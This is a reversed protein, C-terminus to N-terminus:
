RSSPHKAQQIILRGNMWTKKNRQTMGVKSCLSVRRLLKVINSKKLCGGWEIQCYNQKQEDYFTMKAETGFSSHQFRVLPRPEISSHIFNQLIHIKLFINHM